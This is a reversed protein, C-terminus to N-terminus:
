WIVRRGGGGWGGIGKFFGSDVTFADEKEPVGSWNYCTKLMFLPSSKAAEFLIRGTLLKLKGVGATISGHETCDFSIHLVRIFNIVHCFRLCIYFKEVTSSNLFAVPCCDRKRQVLAILYEIQRDYFVACNGNYVIGLMLHYIAVSPAASLDSTVCVCYYVVM